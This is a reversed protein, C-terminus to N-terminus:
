TKTYVVYKTTTFEIQIGVIRVEDWCRKALCFFFWYKSTGTTSDVSAWRCTCILRPLTPPPLCCEFCYPYVYRAVITMSYTNSVPLHYDGYQYCSYIADASTVTCEHEQHGNQNWCRLNWEMEKGEWGCGLTGGTKIVVPGGATSLRNCM